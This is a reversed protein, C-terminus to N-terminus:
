RTPLPRLHVVDGEALLHTDGDDADLVLRGDDAIDAACGTLVSGDAREIRVQRGITACAQRREAVLAGIGAPEVLQRERRGLEALVRGLLADREVRAGTEAEVTTATPPLALAGDAPWFLNCGVGVVLAGEVWEALVGALKPEGPRAAVLDNPWKLAAACGALDALARRLALACAAIGLHAGAIGGPPHLVVSMMLGSGAPAEWRRGRRGRGAIQEDAVVVLGAGAGSRVLDAALRNTSDVQVVRVINTFRHDPASAQRGSDGPQAAGGRGPGGGSRM